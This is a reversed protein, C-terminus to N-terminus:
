SMRNAFIYVVTAKESEEWMHKELCGYNSESAAPRLEIMLIVYTLLSHKCCHRGPPSRCTPGSLPMRCPWAAPLLFQAARSFHKLSFLSGTRCAPPVFAIAVYSEWQESVNLPDDDDDLAQLLAGHQYHLSMLLLICLLLYGNVRLTPCNDSWRVVQALSLPLSQQVRAGWHARCLGPCRWYWESRHLRTWSM